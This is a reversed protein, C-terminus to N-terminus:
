SVKDSNQLPLTFSFLAGSGKNREAWIRGYHAEVISRSVSLGIGMGSAKTTTFPEFCDEESSGDLGCGTDLVDVRIVRDDPNSTSIVLERKENTQMAELANQILNELVKRLQARDAVVQDSTAGCKLRIEAPPELEELRAAERIVEHVGVLTKDPEGRQVIDRLNTVIRGARLTQTTAKDLIELLEPDNIRTKDLRRRAVTLYTSTAALPQNIEHALTAAMDGIAALRDRHLKEIKAEIKRQRTLDKVFAVLPRQGDFRAESISIEAPFRAGSKRIGNVRWREGANYASIAFAGERRSEKEEEVLTSVNLGAMAAAAYGFMAAGAKNVSQIVGTSDMTLVADQAADITAQLRAATEALSLEARKRATIDSAYGHWVIQGDRERVPAAQAELWVPGKQAHDFRFEAICLSMDQASRFLRANLDDLDQKHIRRFFVRADACIDAAEVGFVDIAKPAVYRYAVRQNEDLHFSGVVGPAALAVSALQESIRARELLAEAAAKEDTVDRSVGVVRVPKRDEFLTQGRTAIWRIAGDSPRRIRYESLYVGDGHPDFASLYAARASAADEELILDYISKPTVVADPPLGYIAKTEPTVAGINDRVDLDWAGIAGAALAVQFHQNAVQLREAAERRARAEGLRLRTRHLVETAVSFMACTAMFLVLGYSNAAANMPAFSVHVVVASAVTAFLGPLLGGLLAAVEVAPYFTAYPLQAGVAPPMALRALTALAVAACAVALRAPPAAAYASALWRTALEFRRRTKQSALFRM